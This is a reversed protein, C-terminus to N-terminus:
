LVLVPHTRGLRRRGSQPPDRRRDLHAGLECPIELWTTQLPSDAEDLPGINVAGVRHLGELLRPYRRM